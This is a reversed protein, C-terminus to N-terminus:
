KKMYEFRSQLCDPHKMSAAVQERFSEVSTVADVGGEMLSVDHIVLKGDSFDYHYLYYEQSAQDAPQSFIYTHGDLKTTWSLFDTAEVMFSEGQKLVEVAFTVEDKKTFKVELVEASDSSCVWTGLLRKDLKELQQGEAFPYSISVPCGASIAVLYALFVWSAM